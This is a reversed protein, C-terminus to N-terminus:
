KSSGTRAVLQRRGRDAVASGFPVSRPPDRGRKEPARPRAPLDHQGRHAPVVPRGRRANPPHPSSRDRADARRRRQRERRHQRACRVSARPQGARVASSLPLSPSVAAGLVQERPPRPSSPLRWRPSAAILGTVATARAPPSTTFYQAYEENMAEFLSDDTIFVRAAVVHEYSLGATKLLVGANDLVTRTQVARHRPRRTTPAAGASSVPSSSSALRDPRHLFLAPAVEDLRGSAAGRPRASRLPSRDVNRRARRRRLAHHGRDDQGTRGRCLVPSLRREDRRLRDRAAPLRAGVRGPRALVRGSSCRACGISCAAHKSQIDTGCLKGDEVAGSSGQCSCWTGARGGGHQVARGHGLKDNVVRREQVLRGGCAHDCYHPSSAIRCHPLAPQRSTRKSESAAAQRNPLRPCCQGMAETGWQRVVGNGGNSYTVETEPPEAHLTVDGPRSEEDQGQDGRGDKEGVDLRALLRRDLELAHMPRKMPMIAPPPSDIRWTASLPLRMDRM